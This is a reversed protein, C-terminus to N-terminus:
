GLSFQIGPVLASIHSNLAGPLVHVLETLLAFCGQRNKISKEKLQKHISKVINPIQNQLQVVPSFIYVCPSNCNIPTFVLVSSSNDSRLFLKWDPTLFLIKICLSLIWYLTPYTISKKDVEDCLKWSNAFIECSQFKFKYIPM